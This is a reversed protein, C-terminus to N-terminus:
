VLPAPPSPQSRHPPPTPHPPTAPFHFPPPHRLHYRVGQVAELDATLKASRDQEEQLQRRLARLEQQAEVKIDNAVVVATQLDAQFRRWEEKEDKIQRNLAKLHRDSEAKQEELKKVLNEMDLVAQNTHCNVARQQEVQDELEFITEKLEKVQNEAQTRAEELSTVRSHLFIREVLHPMYSPVVCWLRIMDPWIRCSNGG